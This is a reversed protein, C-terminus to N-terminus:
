STPQLLRLAASAILEPDELDVFHGLDAHEQYDADQAYSLISRHDTKAHSKDAMGWLIATPVTATMQINADTGMWLQMQSALGYCCGAHQVDRATAQQTALDFKPGAAYPMWWDITAGERSLRFGIQGHFPTQLLGTKDLAKTSWARAAEFDGTQAVILGALADGMIESMRLAILGQVCPGVLIVQHLNLDQLAAALIQASDEFGMAEPKKPYSFGFGPIELIAITFRDKLTEILADYSELMAPGDPMFVLSPSDKPGKVVRRRIFSREDEWLDCDPRSALARQRMEAESLGSFALTDLIAPNIM